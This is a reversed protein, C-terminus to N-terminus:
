HSREWGYDEIEVGDVALDIVMPHRERKPEHEWPWVADAKVYASLMVRNLEAFEEETLADLMDLM